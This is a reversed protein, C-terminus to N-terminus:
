VLAEDPVLGFQGLVVAGDFDGSFMDGTRSFAIVGGKEALRKAHRIAIDRGQVQQAPKPVLHGKKNLEFPQLERCDEREIRAPM